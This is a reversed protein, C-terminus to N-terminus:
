CLLSDEMIHTPRMEGNSPSLSFVSRGQPLPFTGLLHDKSGFVVERPGWGALEVQVTSVQWGWLPM